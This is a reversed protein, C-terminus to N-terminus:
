QPPSISLANQFFSGLGGLFSSLFEVQSPQILSVSSLASLFLLYPGVNSTINYSICFVQPMLITVFILITVFRSLVFWFNVPVRLHFLCSQFAGLFFFSFVTFDHSFPHLKNWHFGVMMDPLSHMHPNRDGETEATSVCGPDSFSSLHFPCPQMSLYDQTDASGLLHGYYYIVYLSM